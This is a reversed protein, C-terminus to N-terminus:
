ITVGSIWKIIWSAAISGSRATLYVLFAISIKYIKETVYAWFFESRKYEAPVQDSSFQSPNIAM